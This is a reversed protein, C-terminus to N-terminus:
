PFNIFFAHIKEFSRMRKKTLLMTKNVTDHMKIYRGHQVKYRGNVHYISKEVLFPPSVM